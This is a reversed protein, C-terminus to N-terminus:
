SEDTPATNRPRGVAVEIRPKVGTRDGRLTSAGVNRWEPFKEQFRRSLEKGNINLAILHPYITGQGQQAIERATELLQKRRRIRSRERSQTGTAALQTAPAPAHKSAGVGLASALIDHYGIRKECAIALLDAVKFRFTNRPENPNVPKLRTPVCSDLIACFDAHQKNVKGSLGNFFGFGETEEPPEALLLWCFKTITWTDAKGIWDGLKAIKQAIKQDKLQATRAASARDEAARQEPTMAARRKREAEQQQALRKQFEAIFKQLAEAPHSAEKDTSDTM